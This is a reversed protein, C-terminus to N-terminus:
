NKEAEKEHDSLHHVASAVVEQGPLIGDLEDVSIILFHKTWGELVTGEAVVQVDADRIRLIAEPELSEFYLREVVVWRNEPIIDAVRGVVPTPDLVGELLHSEPRLAVLAKRESLTACSCLSCSLALLGAFRMFRQMRDTM